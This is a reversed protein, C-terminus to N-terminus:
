KKPSKGVVAFRFPADQPSPTRSSDTGAPEGQDALRGTSGPAPAAGADHLASFAAVAAEFFEREGMGRRKAEARLDSLVSRNRKVEAAPGRAGILKLFEPESIKLAAAFRPVRHKDIGTVDAQEISGMRESSIGVLQALERQTLYRKERVEKMKKGLIKITPRM